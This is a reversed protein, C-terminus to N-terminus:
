PRVVRGLLGLWGARVEVVRREGGRLVEVPIFGDRELADRVAGELDSAADRGDYTLLVDGAALGRHEAKGNVFGTVLFGGVRLDEASLAARIGAELVPPAGECAARLARRVEPADSLSLHTAIQVRAPIPVEPDELLGLLLAGMGPADVAVLGEVMSRLVDEDEETRLAERFRPVFRAPPVLTPLAEAAMERFAEPTPRGLSWALLDTVAPAALFSNWSVASIDLRERAADIEAALAMAPGRGDPGLGALEGVAALAAAGDGRAIARRAEAARSEVAEGREGPDAGAPTRADATGEAGPIGRGGAPARERRLAEVERLLRETEERAADRERTLSEARAQARQAAEIGEGDDASPWLSRAAAGAAAGLAAAIV